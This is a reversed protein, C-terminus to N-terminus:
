KKLDALSYEPEDNSYARALGTAAIQTWDSQDDDSAPLVTVILPSNQPLECPEDLVLRQGDLHAKITIPQMFFPYTLNLRTEVRFVADFRLNSLL